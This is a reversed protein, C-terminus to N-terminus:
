RQVKLLEEAKSAWTAAYVGINATEGSFKPVQSGYPKDNTTRHASNLAFIAASGDELIM